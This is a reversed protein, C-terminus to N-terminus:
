ALFNNCLRPEPGQIVSASIVLNSVAFTSQDLSGQGGQSCDDVPVWGTWQSSYLVAGKSAHAAQVVEWTKDDPSPSLADLLQGDRTVTWSGTEDYEIRMHFKKQDYHYESRCGWATCGDSGPGEITHITSAGGCGGNSEIWDMELCWDEGTAAGDCYDLTKNFAPSHFQPSITYINANVMSEVNSVDFDFEVSGGNLNFATKTAVGGGGAITWGQDQLTPCDTPLDGGCYAVTLDDASPCYQEAAVLPLLLAIRVM